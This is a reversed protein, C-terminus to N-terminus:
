ILVLVMMVCCKTKTWNWEQKSTPTPSSYNSTLRGYMCYTCPVTTTIFLLHYFRNLDLLHYFACPAHKDNYLTFCAGQANVMTCHYVRVWRWNGSVLIFCTRVYRVVDAHVVDNRGIRVYWYLYSNKRMIEPDVGPWQRGREMMVMLYVGIWVPECPRISYTSGKSDNFWVVVMMM